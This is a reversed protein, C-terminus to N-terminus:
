VKPFNSKNLKLKLMKNELRFLLPLPTIPVWFWIKNEFFEKRKVALRLKKEQNRNQGLRLAPIM